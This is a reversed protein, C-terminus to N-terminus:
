YGFIEVCRDEGPVLPRVTLGFTANTTPDQVWQTLGNAKELAPRLTDADAGDVTGCRATGNAVPGGFTALPTDLPWDMIQLPEGGPDPAPGVLISYAPPTYSSEAGVEAPLEAPLNVVRRWFESFAEPSGPAPNPAPAAGEQGPFGTLEVLNGELTLQVQGTVGGPLGAGATFDTKGGLLGLERAWSMITDRGAASVQRGTLPMVQPGPFIADVPAPVVYVGDGTIVATDLQPFLNLPPIAQFTAMRLWYMGAVPTASSPAPSAPVASSSAPAGPVGSAGASPGAGAGSCAVFLVFLPLMALSNLNRM